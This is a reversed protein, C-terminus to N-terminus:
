LEGPNGEAKPVIESAISILLIHPLEKEGGKIRPYGEKVKGINIVADIEDAGNKVARETEFVKVATENYGNPFGIVTCIKVQDGVYDSVAHVFSPPICVSAAHFEYADDCVCKIDRWTAAPSLLTHDCYSLIEETKM